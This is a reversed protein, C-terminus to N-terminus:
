NLILQNYGRNKINNVKGTHAFIKRSNFNNDFEAPEKFEMDRGFQNLCEMNDKVKLIRKRLEVTPVLFM